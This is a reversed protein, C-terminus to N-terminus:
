EDEQGQQAPWWSLLRPKVVTFVSVHYPGKVGSLLRVTPCRITTWVDVCNNHFSGSIAHQVYYSISVLFDCRVILWVYLIAMKITETKVSWRQQANLIACSWWQIFVISTCIICHLLLFGSISYQVSFLPHHTASALRCCLFVSRTM